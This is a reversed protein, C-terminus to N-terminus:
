LKSTESWQAQIMDPSGRYPLVRELERMAYLALEDEFPLAAIQVGVPLGKSDKLSRDCLKAISDHQCDPLKDVPYNQEDARVQTVPCIGMPWGLLNGFFTYCCMQSLHKSEGHILAPLAPGPLLLTDFPEPRSRLLKRWQSRYEEIDATVQWFDYVNLGGSKCTSLLFAKRKEGMFQLIKTIAPRALNPIDSINKLSGYMEHLKEGELGEIFSRLNGDAAMIAVYMGAAAWGGIKEPVQLEEVVHGAGRLAGVAEDVARIAASCPAFWDNMRFYAIKLQRRGSKTEVNNSSGVGNYMDHNFPQRPITPDHEWAEQRWWAQMVAACDDVCHALPGATGKIVIQGSRNGVRASSIGEASNREVTPKFGYCGCFHAPIRVSGGIDTGIGLPSCRAGVLGGEGGSSGGPTRLMNYPNLSTGWVNNTSEPLMLAQTTNSRVFPIAGADKLLKVLVADDPAGDKGWYFCRAASGMTSDFGKQNIQDKVSIPVGLLPYRAFNEWDSKTRTKDVERAMRIAEEYNEETVCNLSSSGKRWGGIEYAQRCFAVVVQECTFDGRQMMGRLETASAMRVKKDNENSLKPAAALLPFVIADRAKRKDHAKQQLATATQTKGSNLGCATVTIGVAAGACCLEMSHAALWSATESLPM